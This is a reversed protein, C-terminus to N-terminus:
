PRLHMALGAAGVPNMSCSLFSVALVALGLAPSYLAAAIALLAAITGLVLATPVGSLAAGLGIGAALIAGM